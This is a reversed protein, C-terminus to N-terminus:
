RKGIKGISRKFDDLIKEAKKLGALLDKRDLTIQKSCGGCVMVDNAKLWSITKKTKHGCEPCPINIKSTEFM